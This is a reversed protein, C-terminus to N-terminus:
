ASSKRGLRNLREAWHRPWFAVVFVVLTFLFVAVTGQVVQFHLSDTAVFWETMAASVALVIRVLWSIM